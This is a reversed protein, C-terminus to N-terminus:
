SRRRRCAVLASAGLLVGTGPAPIALLISGSSFQDGMSAGAFDLSGLASAPLGFANSYDQLLIEWTEGPEFVGDPNMSEAILSRNMGLQDIRFAQGVIGPAAFSEGFGDVNSITTHPDAVYYLDTLTRGTLNTIILLANPIAPDDTQPCAPFSVFTFEAQILEDPPFFPATGLEDYFILPGHNDCDPGDFYQGQVPFAGAMGACLLLTGAGTITIINTHRSM